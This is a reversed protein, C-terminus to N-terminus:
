KGHLSGGEFSQGPSPCIKWTDHDQYEDRDGPVVTVTKGAFSPSPRMMPPPM